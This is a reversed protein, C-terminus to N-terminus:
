FVTRTTESLTRPTNGFYPVMFTFGYTGTVDVTTVSTVVSRTFCIQLGTTRIALRNRVAAPLANGTLCGSLPPDEVQAARAAEAVATRFSHWTFYYRGIEMGGLLLMFFMSAVIGFELATVGRRDRLVRRLAVPLPRSSSASNPM